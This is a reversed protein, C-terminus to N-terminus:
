PALLAPVASRVRDAIDSLSLHGRGDGAVVLVPVGRARARASIEGTIKGMDSQEDYRGEGTIVLRARELLEDFGLRALLWESGAVLEAGAFVHLGAGLGGAAGGFPLARVDIHLDRWVLAAVSALRQELLEVQDPTAGKQPAFVRAAGAPGLLPNRVDALATIRPMAVGDLARAAGMGGDVTASGGLGIVIHPALSAAARLLQGVGFTTTKLPNRDAAPVLHLGCADASEIIATQQQVLIRATVPDGLPGTVPVHELNGGAHAFLADILGPGGDAVPLEIVECACVARAAQAITRAAEAASHTGKFSTPAAIIM